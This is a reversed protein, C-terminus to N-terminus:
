YLCFYFPTKWPIPLSPFPFNTNLSYMIETQLSLFKRSMSPPSLQVIHTYKYM